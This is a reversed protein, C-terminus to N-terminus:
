ASIPRPRGPRARGRCHPIRTQEHEPAITNWGASTLSHIIHGPNASTGDVTLNLPTVAGSGALAAPILLNVQDLGAMSGQAGAYLVQVPQGAITCVPATAAHRIGTGYLVLYVAGGSLDIPATAPQPDGPTGDPNMTIIQAAPAGRGSGDATFLGPAVASVVVPASLTRAPSAISVTAPGPSVGAPMVITAQTASVFLLSAPRATGTNDTVKASTAGSLNPGFLTVLEEAAFSGSLYSAANTAALLHFAASTSALFNADGSYIAVVTDATSPLPATAVAGNLSVTALATATAADLFRVTGGPSGAGPTAVTVAALLANGSIGLSIATAAQNVTQIVQGTAAASTGDGAWSAAVTHVGVPLNVSLSPLARPSRRRVSPAAM